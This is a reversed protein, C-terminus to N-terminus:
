INEERKLGTGDLITEIVRVIERGEQATVPPETGEDLSDLYRKTLEGTGFLLSDNLTRVGSSVVGRLEQYIGRMSTELVERPSHSEERDFTFYIDRFIDTVLIKETGVVAFYWESLPAEFLMLLSGMREEDGRLSTNLMQIPQEAEPNTQASVNEVTLDGLFHEILYLLHPSEDFFLGGPLEPYWTPLDRRPSSTQFGIVNQVKGVEGSEVAERAKLMSSAFLFNHVVGLTLDNEEATAIMRDADDTTLALPKESLVNAGSNLAEIVVEAHTFPPTCISVVDFDQEFFLEQDTFAHAVDYEDAVREATEPNRDLVAHLSARDDRKWSPIHRQTGVSGLGVVGIKYRSM